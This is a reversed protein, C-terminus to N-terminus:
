MILIGITHQYYSQIDTSSLNNKIQSWYKAIMSTSIRAGVIEGHLILNEKIKDKTEKLYNLVQDTM